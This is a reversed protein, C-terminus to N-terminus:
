ILSEDVRQGEIRDEVVGVPSHHARHLLAEIPHATSAEVDEEEV